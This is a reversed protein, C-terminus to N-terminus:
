SCGGRYEIVLSALKLDPTFTLHLTVDYNRDPYTGNGQVQLTEHQTSTAVLASNLKLVGTDFSSPDVNATENVDFTDNATVHTGDPYVGTLQTVGHMSVVVHYGSVQVITAQEQFSGNTITFRPSDVGLSLDCVNYVQTVITTIDERDSGHWVYGEASATGSLALLSVAAAAALSFVTFLRTTM